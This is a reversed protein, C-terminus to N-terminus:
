SETHVTSPAQFALFTVFGTFAGTLSFKGCVHKAAGSTNRSNVLTKREEPAVTENFVFRSLRGLICYCRHIEKVEAALEQSNSPNTEDEDNRESKILRKEMDYKLM